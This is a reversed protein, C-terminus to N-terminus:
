GGILSSLASAFVQAPGTTVTYVAHMFGGTLLSLILPMVSALVASPALAGKAQGGLWQPVDPAGSPAFIWAVVLGAFMFMAVIVLVAHPLGANVGGLWGAAWEVKTHVWSGLDTVAITSGGAFMLLIALRAVWNYAFAPLWRYHRNLVFALGIVVLGAGSGVISALTRM